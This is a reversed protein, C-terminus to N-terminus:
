TSEGPQQHLAADLLDLFERPSVIRAGGVDQLALLQMDGTVLYDVRASVVAALILDDELHTATAEIPDTIEALEAQRQITLIAHAAEAPSIRRSFYPNGLTRILEELIDSSTV